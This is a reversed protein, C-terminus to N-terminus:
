VYFHFKQPESANGQCPITKQPRSSIMLESTLSVAVPGGCLGKLIFLRVEICVIRKNRSQFSRVIAQFIIIIIFFEGGGM